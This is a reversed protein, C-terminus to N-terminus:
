ILIRDVVAVGDQRVVPRPIPQSALLVTAFFDHDFLLIVAEFDQFLVRALLPPRRARNRHFLVELVRM